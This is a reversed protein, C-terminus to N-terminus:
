YRSIKETEIYARSYQVMELPKNSHDYKFFKSKVELKGMAYENIKKISNDSSNNDVVIVQYNPYNINYISELCEITDLWGNWNLIIIAVCPDSM